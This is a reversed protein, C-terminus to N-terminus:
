RPGTVETGPYYHQLIAQFGLGARARGAAGEQCMGVGHGWGGGLLEFRDGNQRVVFLTSNLGSSSIKGGSTIWRIADGHVTYAGNLTLEQARGLPGRATVELSTLPGRWDPISAKLKPELEAATYSEKWRFRGAASCCADEPPHELFKRVAEESSLDGPDSKLTDPRGRLGGRGGWVREADQGVGGCVAHFTADIPAGGRTLLCGGSGLVAATTSDAESALGGYVQCHVEDCLDAGAHKEGLHAVAFSRAVVAMAKLAEPPFSPPVENPVVGAVYEELSLVNVLTLGQETPAIELAGRYAGWRYAGNSRTIRLATYPKDQLTVSDDSRSVLKGKADYIGVAPAKGVTQISRVQRKGVTLVPIKEEVLIRLSRGEPLMERYPLPAPLERYPKQTAVYGPLVRPLLRQLLQRVEPAATDEPSLLDEGCYIGSATELVAADGNDFRALVKTGKHPKLAMANRKGLLIGDQSDPQIWRNFDGGLEKSLAMGNPQWPSGDQQRYSTQATALLKGGEACFQRVKQVEDSSMCRVNSLILLGPRLGDLSTVVRPPAGLSELTRAASELEYETRWGTNYPSKYLYIRPGAPDCSLLLLVALCLLLRM